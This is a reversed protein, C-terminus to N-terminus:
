CEFLEKQQQQCLETELSDCNTLEITVPQLCSPMVWGIPIGMLTEVWRANLKGKQTREVMPTLEKYERGENGRGSKYDRATPTAWLEHRSGHSSTRVPAAQGHMAVAVNLNQMANDRQHVENGTVSRYDRAQVTPWQEAAYVKRALQDERNRTPDAYMWAGPCDKHDRASATPWSSSGSGNILRASKVRQSYAGRQETVWSKWTVSSQPSDWRYIDKSTKLSVSGQDFFDFEAQSLLGFIDHTTKEKGDEQPQFHNAHIVELSSTWAIEFAKGRSPKLIRGSLHQTWSDRKWKQSWTRVPSLKSRVFLSQACLQSQEVCDLSLAEMDPVYASILQKPVIWM